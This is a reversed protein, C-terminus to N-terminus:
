GGSEKESGRIQRAGPDVTVLGGEGGSDKQPARVQTVNAEVFSTKKDGIARLLDARFLNAGKFDARSVKAKMLIAGELNAAVLSAGTLDARMFLAGKAVVRYLTAERLICKSLDSGSLDSGSFDARTFDAERLTAREIMAGKLDAGVFSCPEAVRLSRMDAKVFTADDLTCRVLTTSKLIANTFDAARLDVDVIIANVFSAQRLSSGRLKNGKLICRDFNTRALNVGDLTVDALDALEFNVGQLSAGTLDAKSLIAGKLKVEDLKANKLNSAGLNAETLDAGTLDISGMEAASLVTFSLNAGAFCAETLVANEFFSGSFDAGRLDLGSFDAGCFDQQALSRGEAHALVVRRRLESREPEALRGPRYEALHAGLRYGERAEDEVERLASETEPDSLAADLEPTTVNSNSCLRQIDRLREIEKDASFKPPGAAEKRMKRVEADYDLGQSAFRKRTDGEARKKDAELKKQTEEIDRMSKEIFDPIGEFGPSPAAPTPIDVPPMADPDAGAEALAKRTKEAERRAREAIHKQLLQESRTLEFMQDVDSGGGKGGVNPPVLDSDRLAELAERKPDIRRDRVAIYHEIPRPDRIEDCAVLLHLIDDADDEAIPAIGRFALVCRELHPFLQVTDLRTPIEHFIVGEATVQTVFCRGMIGPLRGELRPKDPHMNEVLIEETGEFFGPLKQDDPAANWMSLDMDAAFGPLQERMWKTDYTGIKPWRQAWLMDYPKFGAPAPKDSKSKIIKKPDEINPLRHVERDGLKVPAVGVGVPNQPFGAGGFAREYTVPMETFPEPDSATGDWRWVRDGVVYLTKDIPGVKVRVSAAPRPVAGATFCRGHVILEGRQKPMCEDIIGEKGLEAAVIGWLDMEPFLRLSPGLECLVLITPVFYHKRDLEFARTLVGLKLPKFTKL